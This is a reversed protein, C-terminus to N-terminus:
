RTLAPEEAARELESVEIKQMKLMAEMVRQSKDRDPDNLLRPLADPVIQWSLGYRDKLWGCQSAEGGNAILASWLRDVEAQDECNVLISTAETFKFDPGGNLANFREGALEFDVTLVMGEPRPAGPGYRAVDVIRSDPFLSVYYEAAELAQTDFWLSTAITPM